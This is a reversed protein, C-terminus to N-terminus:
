SKDVPEPDIYVEASPETLEVPEALNHVSKEAVWALFDGSEFTVTGVWGEAPGNVLRVTAKYLDGRWHIVNGIEMHLGSVVAKSVDVGRAGLAAVESTPQKEGAGNVWREGLGVRKKTWTSGDLTQVRQGVPLMVLTAQPLVSVVDVGTWQPMPVVVNRGEFIVSGPNLGILAPKGQYLVYDGPELNNLRDVRSDTM